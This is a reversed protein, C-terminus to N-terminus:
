SCSIMFSVAPVLNLEYTLKARAYQTRHKKHKSATANVTLLTTFCAVTAIRTARKLRQEVTCFQVYVLTFILSSGYVM